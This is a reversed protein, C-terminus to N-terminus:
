WYWLGRLRIAYVRYPKPGILAEGGNIFVTPTGYFNTKTIQTLQLNITDQTASSGACGTISAADL